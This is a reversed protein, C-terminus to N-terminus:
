MSPVFKQPVTTPHSSAAEEPDSSCCSRSPSSLSTEGALKKVHRRTARKADTVTRWRERCQDRTRTKFIASVAAWRTGLLEVICQLQDDEAPTWPMRSRGHRFSKSNFGISVPGNSAPIFDSPRMSSKQDSVPAYMNRSDYMPQQSMQVQPGQPMQGMDNRDFRNSQWLAPSQDYYYSKQEASPQSMWSPPGASPVSSRFMPMPGMNPASGLSRPPPLVIRGLSGVGQFAGQRSQMSNSAFPFQSGSSQPNYAPQMCFGSM